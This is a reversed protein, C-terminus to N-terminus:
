DPQVGKNPKPGLLGTNRAKKVLRVYWLVTFSLIVVCLLYGSLTLWEIPHPNWNRWHGLLVRSVFLTGIGFVGLVGSLSSLVWLYNGRPSKGRLSLAVATLLIAIFTVLAAGGAFLMNSFDFVFRALGMCYVIGMGWQLDMTQSYPPSNFAGDRDLYRYQRETLYKKRFNKRAVKADGLAAMGARHADSESGGADLSQRFVHDYHAELEARLREAAPMCVGRFATDFWAMRVFLIVPDSVPITLGGSYTLVEFATKEFENM